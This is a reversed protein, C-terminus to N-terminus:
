CALLREEANGQREASHDAGDEELGSIPGPHRDVSRLRQERRLNKGATVSHKGPFRVRATSWSPTARSTTSPRRRRSIAGPRADSHREARGTPDRGAERDRGRDRGRLRVQRSNAPRVLPQRAGGISTGPHKSFVEVSVRGGSGANGLQHDKYAVGLAFMRADAIGRIRRSDQCNRPITWRRAAAPVFPLMAVALLVLLIRGSRMDQINM